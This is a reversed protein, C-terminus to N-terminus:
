WKNNLERYQDQFAQNDKLALIDRLHPNVEGIKFEPEYNPDLIQNIKEQSVVRSDIPFFVKKLISREENLRKAEEETDVIIPDYEPFFPIEKSKTQAM